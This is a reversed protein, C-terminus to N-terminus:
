RFLAALCHVTYLFLLRSVSLSLSLFLFRERTSSRAPCHAFLLLSRMVDFSPRQVEDDDDDANGDATAAAAAAAGDDFRVVQDCDDQAQRAAPSIFSALM